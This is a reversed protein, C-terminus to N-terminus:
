PNIIAFVRCPAAEADDLRFFPAFITCREELAGLRTASEILPLGVGLLKKHVVFDESTFDDLAASYEEFFDFVIAKPERELLWDAGDETLYPSEKYFRPFDGWARDTWDTRIAILDGPRIDGAGKELMAADVAQRPGAGSCDIVSADGVVRDLPTAAIVDGDEFVHWTSDVHSGTHLLMDISSVQWHGPGRRHHEIDVLRGKAAPPAQTAGDVTVSLDVIRSV